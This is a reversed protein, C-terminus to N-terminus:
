VAVELCELSMCPSEGVRSDAAWARVTKADCSPAMKSAKGVGPKSAAPAKAVSSDRKDEFEALVDQLQAQCEENLDIVYEKGSVFFRVTETPTSGVFGDAMTSITAM